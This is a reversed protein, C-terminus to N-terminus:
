LLGKLFKGYKFKVRKLAKDKIQRVRERSIGLEKGIEELTKPPNNELGYYEKIIKYERENLEMKLISLLKDRGIEKRTREEMSEQLEDEFVEELSRKEDDDVFEDLSVQGRYVMLADKIEDVSMGLLNAIEEDTPERQHTKFYEDIARRISELKNRFTPSLKIARSQETLAKMMAQRIWSTAYTLLRVRRRLDYKEIARILGLVGEDILDTIPVGYGSYKRALKYIYRLNSQILKNRAQIDGKKAREILKREEHADLIPYNFIEKLLIELSSDEYKSM